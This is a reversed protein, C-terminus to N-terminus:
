KVRVCLENDYFGFAVVERDGLEHLKLNWFNGKTICNLNDDNICVTGTWDYRTLFDKLKM